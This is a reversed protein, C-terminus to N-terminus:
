KSFMKVFMNLGKMSITKASLFADTNVDLNLLLEEIKGLCLEKASASLMTDRFDILNDTCNLTELMGMMKHEYSLAIFPIRQNIAFVISHYRAGILFKSKSIITQQIDSSYCDPVVIIRPDNLNEAILRFLNIDDRMGGQDFTQPLMVISLKPYLKWVKHIIECYFEVLEKITFCGQYKYHWLLYNPVFVMYQKDKLLMNVEYPLCVQPTELFASDVTSIYPVGIEKAIDESKSDRLSLYSFYNLLEYSINKFNEDLQTATSFPGISRGFYAIPKKCYQTLKLFYLHKWDQFGGMCIGGPACLVVDSWEYHSVIERMTPHIRWLIKKIPQRLAIESVKSYRLCSHINIYNVREDIVSVQSISYQSPCSVFLVRISLDPILKLLERVLAKHASEDGRNSLPQNVILIKVM